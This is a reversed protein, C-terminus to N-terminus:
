QQQVWLPQRGTFTTMALPAQQASFSYLSQSLANSKLLFAHLAIWIERAMSVQAPPDRELDKLERNIRKLAM